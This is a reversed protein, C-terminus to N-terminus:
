LHEDLYQDTMVVHSQPSEPFRIYTYDNFIFFIASKFYFGLYLFISIYLETYYRFNLSTYYLYFISIVSFILYSAVSHKLYFISFFFLLINLFLILNIFIYISTKYNKILQM